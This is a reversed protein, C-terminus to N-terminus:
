FLKKQWSSLYSFLFISNAMKLLVTKKFSYKRRLVNTTSKLKACQPFHPFKNDGSKRLIGCHSIEPIKKTSLRFTLGFQNWSFNNFASFKVAGEEGVTHFNWSKETRGIKRTILKQGDLPGLVATKAMKSTRFKTLKTFKPRWFTSFNM